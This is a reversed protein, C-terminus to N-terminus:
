ANTEGQIIKRAEDDDSNLDVSIIGKWLYSSRRHSFLGFWYRTDDVLYAPNKDMDVFYADCLYKLKTSTPDFLHLNDNLLNGVSKGSPMLLPRKAFTVIDIDNPSRNDNDEVNEVFSGNIWQFGEIFGIKRLDDRYNMLGSLISVREESSAFRSVIESMTAKYPSAEVRIAPSVGIFPPLVGSENFAPIM